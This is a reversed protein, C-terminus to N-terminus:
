DYTFMSGDPNLVLCNCSQIEHGNENRFIAAWPKFELRKGQGLKQFPQVSGVATDCVAVVNCAFGEELASSKTFVVGTAEVSEFAQVTDIGQGQSRILWRKPSQRDLYNASVVQKAM